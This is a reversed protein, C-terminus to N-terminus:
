DAVRISLVSRRDEMVAVEVWDGVSVRPGRGSERVTAGARRCRKSGNTPTSCGCCSGIVDLGMISLRRLRYGHTLRVPLSRFPEVRLVGPMHLLESMVSRPVPDHFLVTIDDRQSWRFQFDILYDMADTM